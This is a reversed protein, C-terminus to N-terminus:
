PPPTKRFTHIFNQHSNASIPQHNRLSEVSGRSFLPMRRDTVAIFPTEPQFSRYPTYVNVTSKAPPNERSRKERM